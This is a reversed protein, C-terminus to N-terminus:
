NHLLAASFALWLLALCCGPQGRYEIGISIEQGLGLPVQAILKGQSIAKKRRNSKVKVKIKVSLEPCCYGVMASAILILQVM